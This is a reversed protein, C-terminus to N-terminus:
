IMGKSEPKGKKIVPKKCFDFDNLGSYHPAFPYFFIMIM